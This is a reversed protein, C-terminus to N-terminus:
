VGGVENGKESGVMRELTKLIGNREEAGANVFSELASHPEGEFRMNECLVKPDRTLVEIMKSKDGRFPGCLETLLHDAAADFFAKDNGSSGTGSTMKNTVTARTACSVGLGRNNGFTLKFLTGACLLLILVFANNHDVVAWTRHCEGFAAAVSHSGVGPYGGQAVVSWLKVCFAGAYGGAFIRAACSMIRLFMARAEAQALKDVVDEM